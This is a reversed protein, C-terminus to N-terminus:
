GFEFRYLPFPITQALCRNFQSSSCFLFFSFPSAFKIPFWFLIPSSIPVSQISFDSLKLLSSFFMILASAKPLLSFRHQLPNQQLPDIEQNFSDFSSVSNLALIRSKETFTKFLKKSSFDELSQSTFKM